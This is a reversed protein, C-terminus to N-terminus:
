RKWGGIAEVTAPEQFARGTRRVLEKNYRSALLDLVIVALLVILLVPRLYSGLSLKAPVSVLQGTLFSVSGHLIEPGVLFGLPLCVLIVLATMVRGYPRTALSNLFPFLLLVSYGGLGDIGAV